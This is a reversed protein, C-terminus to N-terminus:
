KLEMLRIYESDILVESNEFVIDLLEARCKNYIKISSALLYTDTEMLEKYRFMTRIIRNIKARIALIRAIQCMIRYM